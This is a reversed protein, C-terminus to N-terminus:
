SNQQAGKEMVFPSFTVDSQFGLRALLNWLVIVRLYLHTIGSVAM